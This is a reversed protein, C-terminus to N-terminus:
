SSVTLTPFFTSAELSREKFERLVEVKSNCCSSGNNSFIAQFDKELGKIILIPGYQFTICM